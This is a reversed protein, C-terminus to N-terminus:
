SLRVRVRVRDRIRVSRRIRFSVGVSVWNTVVVAAGTVVVVCSVKGPEHGGQSKRINCDDYAFMCVFMCVVSLGASWCVSHRVCQSAM